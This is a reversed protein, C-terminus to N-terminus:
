RLKRLSIEGALWTRPEGNQGCTVLSGDPAIGKVVGHESSGDQRVLLVEDGKYALCSEWLTFFAEKGIMTRLRLIQTLFTRVWAPRQIIVGTEDEVSSAPYNLDPLDPASGHLLNLGVGLILANLRGGEWQTECLIGSIKKGNLLVDNPWKIRCDIGHDLLLGERVALGTLPSFLNIFRLEEDTPRILVTLPLSTGPVTIWRREMRGRGKTQEFATIVTMDPAGAASLDFAFDNTSGIADFCYVDGIPLGTLADQLEEKILKEMWNGGGTVRGLRVM